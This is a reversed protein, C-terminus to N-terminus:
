GTCEVLQNRICTWTAGAYHCGFLLLVFPDSPRSSIGEGGRRRTQMSATGSRTLPQANLTKESIVKQEFPADAHWVSPSRWSSDLELLPHVSPKFPPFFYFLYFPPHSGTLGTEAARLRGDGARRAMWWVQKNGRQEKHATPPSLVSFRRVTFGFLRCQTYARTLVIDQQFSCLCLTHCGVSCLAVISKVASYSSYM